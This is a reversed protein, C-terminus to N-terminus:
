EWWNSRRESYGADQFPEPKDAPDEAGVGYTAFWAGVHWGIAASDLDVLTIELQEYREIASDGDPDPGSSVACSGPGDGCASGDEFLVKVDADEPSDVYEFTLNAPVSGDAGNEYYEFAHRIQERAAEPDDASETDAYVTFHADDWPFARETANPQPETYLVSSAAMVDAPEDDHGLGLTHGLEHRVVLETSEDSLGTRVSVTEPRQIQRADTIRPACGAAHTVNDCNPVEDVFEVVLDPNEADPVVRYDVDFGTYERANEEWYSTAQRVLPTFERGPEGRNEVAVVIPDDGWPNTGTSATESEHDTSTSSSGPLPADSSGGGDALSGLCGATVVLLAVVALTPLRSSM